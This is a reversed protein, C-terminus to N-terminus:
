ESGMAVRWWGRTSADAGGSSNRSATARIRAARNRGSIRHSSIGAGCRMAGKAAASEASTVTSPSSVPVPRM